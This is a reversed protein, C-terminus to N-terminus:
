KNEWNQSGLLFNHDEPTKVIEGKEVRCTVLKRKREWCLKLYGSNLNPEM